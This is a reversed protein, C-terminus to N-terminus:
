TAHMAAYRMMFPVASNSMFHAFRMRGVQLVNLWYTLCVKNKASGLFNWASWAASNKPMFTKDHHLYIESGISFYIL